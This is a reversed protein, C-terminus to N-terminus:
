FTLNVQLEQAIERLSNYVGSSIPIGNQEREKQVEFEIEGPLYIREIGEAHKSNRIKAILEDIEKGFIKQEIFSSIRIAGMFNGIESKGSFDDISRVDM